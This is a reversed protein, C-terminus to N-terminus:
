FGREWLPQSCMRKRNETWHAVNQKPPDKVLSTNQPGLYDVGFWTTNLESLPEMGKRLLFSDCTGVQRM